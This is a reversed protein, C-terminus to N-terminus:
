VQMKGRESSLRESSGSVHVIHLSLTAYSEAGCTHVSRCAAQQKWARQLHQSHVRVTTLQALRAKWPQSAQVVALFTARVDTALYSLSCRAFAELSWWGAECGVSCQLVHLCKECAERTMDLGKPETQFHFDHHIRRAGSFSERRRISIYQIKELMCGKTCLWIALLPRCINAANYTSLMVNMNSIPSSSCRAFMSIFSILYRGNTGNWMYHVAASNPHPAGSHAPSPVHAHDAMMSVWHALGSNPSVPRGTSGSIHQPNDLPSGLGPSGSVGVVGSGAKGHVGGDPAGPWM